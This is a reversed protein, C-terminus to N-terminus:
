LLGPNFYLGYDSWQGPAEAAMEADNRREFAWENSSIIQEIVDLPNAVDAASTVASM